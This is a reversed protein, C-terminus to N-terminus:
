TTVIHDRGTVLCRSSVVGRKLWAGFDVRNAPDGTRDSM